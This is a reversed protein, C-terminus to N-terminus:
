GRGGPNLQWQAIRTPEYILPEPTGLSAPAEEPAAPLRAADDYSQALAALQANDVSDLGSGAEAGPFGEAILQLKLDDKLQAHLDAAGVMVGNIEVGLAANFDVGPPQAAIDASIGGGVEIQPPICFRLALLFWLNFILVVIPLFLNLVFMAILTILPISFFCIAAGGMMGGSATGAKVSPSLHQPQLFKVPSFKGRPRSAVQAALERLDPMQISIPRQSSGILDFPPALRYPESPLSWTVSGCCDPVGKRLRTVDHRRVFCRIEYTSHSDFCAQGDPDHEALVTPVVGFYITRGAADHAADRPDPVLPLLPYFREGLHHTSDAHIQEPSLTQWRMGGHEADPLWAQLQADLKQEIFWQQLEERQQALSARQAELYERWDQAGALARRRAERNAEESARQAVSAAYRAADSQAPVPPLTEDLAELDALAAEAQILAENKAQAQAQLAAPIPLLRRRIVFGAQCVKQRPVSPFGASECHLECVILYHRDHAPLFLKRLASPALRAAAIEAKAQAQAAADQAAKGPAAAAPVAAPLGLVKQLPLAFRLKSALRSAWRTANGAADLRSVVDTQADFVLSHQPRALFSEIFDTGAFKQLVPASCRGDGPLAARTWRYWPAVLQWRHSQTLPANM